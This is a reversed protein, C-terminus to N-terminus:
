ARESEEIEIICIHVPLPRDESELRTYLDNQEAIEYECMEDDLYLEVESEMCMRAHELDDCESFTSPFDDGHEVILAYIPM